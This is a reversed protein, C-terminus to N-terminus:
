VHVRAIKGRCFELEGICAVNINCLNSVDEELLLCHLVAFQSRGFGASDSSDSM